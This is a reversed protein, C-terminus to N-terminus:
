IKNPPGLFRLWSPAHQAHEGREHVLDKLASGLCSACCPCLSHMGSLHVKGVHMTVGHLDLLECDCVASVVSAAMAPWDHM